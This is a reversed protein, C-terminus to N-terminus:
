IKDDVKPPYHLLDQKNVPINFKGNIFQKIKLVIALLEVDFEYKHGQLGKNFYRGATERSQNTTEILRPKVSGQIRM